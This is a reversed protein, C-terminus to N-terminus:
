SEGMRRILVDNGHVRHRFRTSVVPQNEGDPWLTVHVLSHVPIVTANFVYAQAASTVGTCGLRSSRSQQPSQLDM